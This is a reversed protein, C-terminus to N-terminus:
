SELAALGMLSRIYMVQGVHYCDHAYLYRLDLQPDLPEPSALLRGVDAHSAAFRDRAANWASDSTDDIEQWNRRELEQEDLPAGGENRHAFYEHWHTMHAVIQWISHRGPAPKWAAQVATLGELADRWPAWWVGETFAENWWEALEPRHMPVITRTLPM